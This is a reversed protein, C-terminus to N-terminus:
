KYTEQMISALMFIVDMNTQVAREGLKFDEYDFEDYIPSIATAEATIEEDKLSFLFYYTINEKTSYDKKSGVEVNVHLRGYYKDEDYVFDTEEQLKQIFKDEETLNETSWSANIFTMYNENEGDFSEMVEIFDAVTEIEADGMTTPKDFVKYKEVASVFEEHSVGCSAFSIVMVVILCICLIKQSTM